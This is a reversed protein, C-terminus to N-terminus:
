ADISSVPATVHARSQRAKKIRVVFREGRVCFILEAAMLTRILLLSREQQAEQM